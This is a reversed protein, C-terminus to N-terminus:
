IINKLITFIFIKYGTINAPYLKIAKLSLNIALSMKKVKFCKASAFFLQTSIEKSTLTPINLNLRRKYANYKAIIHSIQGITSKIPHHGQSSELTRYFYLPKDIFLLKTIEEMKFILDKDEAYLINKDYGKTKLYTKKKFTKFHSTYSKYLNTSNKPIPACYGLKQPNLDKDCIIFQSYIFSYNSNEKYKLLITKIAEKNLADDSDLIGIIEGKALKIMKELTKIYGLNNENRLLHIRKDTLYPKIIKLSDDTSADDLIILEWNCYNQCIVSKIADSIYKANNYNAMIISFDPKM